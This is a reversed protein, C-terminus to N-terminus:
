ATRSMLLMPSCDPRVVPRSPDVPRCAMGDSPRCLQCMQLNPLFIITTITTTTLLTTIFTTITTITTIM